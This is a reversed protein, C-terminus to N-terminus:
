QAATRAAELAHMEDMDWGPMYFNSGFKVADERIAAVEEDDKIAKVFDVLKKGVAEQIRVAAACARDLLAATHDMAEEDYGRTTVACAGLRVGGPTLASKDGPGSM